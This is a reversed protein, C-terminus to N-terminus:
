LALFLFPFDFVLFIQNFCTVYKWRFGSNHFIQDSKLWITMAPSTPMSPALSFILKVLAYSISFNLRRYKFGLANMNMQATSAKANNTALLYMCFWKPMETETKATMPPM